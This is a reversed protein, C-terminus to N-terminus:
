YIADRYGREVGGPGLGERPGAVGVCSQTSIKSRVRRHIVSLVAGGSRPSAIRALGYVAGSSGRGVGRPRLGECPGVTGVSAKSAIVGGIRGHITRL